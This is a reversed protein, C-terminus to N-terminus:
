EELTINVEDKKKLFYSSSM